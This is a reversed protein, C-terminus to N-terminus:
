RYIWASREFDNMIIVPRRYAHAITWAGSNSGIFQDCGASLLFSAKRADPLNMVSQYKYNIPHPDLGTSVVGYGRAIFPDVAEEIQALTVNRIPDHTHARAQLAVYPKGAVGLAARLQGLEDHEEDNLELLNVEACEEEILKYFNVLSHIGDPCGFYVANNKAEEVMEAPLANYVTLFPSLARLFYPNSAGSAELVLQTKPERHKFWRILQHLLGIHGLAWCWQAHLFRRGTKYPSHRVLDQQLQGALLFASNKKQMMGMAHFDAAAADLKWITPHYM